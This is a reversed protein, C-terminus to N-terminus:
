ETGEITFRVFNGSIYESFDYAEGNLEASVNEAKGLFISMSTSSTVELTEGKPYTKYVMREENSDSIEVWSADNFILRLTNEILAKEDPSQVAEVPSDTAKVAKGESISNGETAASEAAVTTVTTVVADDSLNTKVSKTLADNTSSSSGKAEVDTSSVVAVTQSEQEANAVGASSSLSTSLDFANNTGAVWLENLKGSVFLYALLGALALIVFVKLPTFFGKRHDEEASVIDRPMDDLRARKQWNPSAYNELVQDADLKLLRAYSRIYGRVYTSEPLGDSQDAEIAKIQTVSLNLEGAIEEVTKKQEKRATALITGCSSVLKDQAQVEDALKNEDDM